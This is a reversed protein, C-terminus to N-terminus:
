KLWGTQRHLAVELQEIFPKYFADLQKKLDDPMRSYQGSISWGTSQFVPWRRNIANELVEATLPGYVHPPLGVHEHVMDMVLQPDEPRVDESLLILFNESPFYRRWIHIFDIYIGRLVWHRGIDSTLGDPYCREIHVSPLVTMNSLVGPTPLAGLLRRRRVAELTLSDAVERAVPQTHEKLSKLTFTDNFFGMQAWTARRRLWPAHGYDGDREGGIDGIEPSSLRQLMRLHIAERLSDPSPPIGRVPPMDNPASSSEHIISTKEHIAVNGRSPNKPAPHNAPLPSEPTELSRGNQLNSSDPNAPYRPDIVGKRVYDKVDHGWGKLWSETTGTKKTSTSQVQERLSKLARTVNFANADEKGGESREDIAQMGGKQAKLYDQLSKERAASRTPEELGECRTGLTMDNLLDDVVNTVEETFLHLRRFCDESFHYAGGFIKSFCQLLEKRPFPRRRLVRLVRSRQMAPLAKHLCKMAVDDTRSLEICRYLTVLNHPQTFAAKEEEQLNIRRVKMNYESYARETPNRLLLLLPVTPSFQQLLEAAPVSLYYAPTGDFTISYRARTKDIEPFCDLYAAMGRSDIAEIGKYRDLFHCEKMKPPNINPHRLFRAFISTTGSKQAGILYFSPLCQIKGETILSDCCCQSRVPGEYYQCNLHLFSKDSRFIPGDCPQGVTSNQSERPFYM